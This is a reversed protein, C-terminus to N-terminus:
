SEFSKIETKLFISFIDVLPTFLLIVEYYNGLLHFDAIVPMLGTHKGSPTKSDRVNGQAGTERSCTLLDGASIIRIPSDTNHGPVYSHLTKLIERM